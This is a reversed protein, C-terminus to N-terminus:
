LTQQNVKWHGGKDPGIRELLGKAKLKSLNEKIKSAGIGVIPMLEEITIHPYQTINSLIIQQNKTIKETGKETGKETVDSVIDAIKEDKTTIGDIKFTVLAVDISSEFSVKTHTCKEWKLMKDFGYGANDALKVNRFLKAIVPNRPISINIESLRSLLETKNM